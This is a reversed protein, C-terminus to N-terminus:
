EIISPLIFDNIIQLYKKIFLDESVGTIAIVMDLNPIVCIHQGASGWATYAPHGNVSLIWWQYGYCDSLWHESDIVEIQKRTSEVVWEKPIIQSGDWMGENLYLYGIKVMDRTTLRLGMEGYTYLIMDSWRLDSIGLPEFLYEEGFELAMLGTTKTIIMSLINSTTSNYAFEDGPESKLPSELMSQIRDPLALGFVGPGFGATMTLLHRITIERVQPDLAKSDFEPFFSIMKEDVGAIYGEQIAIGILASTISKTASGLYRLDGKERQYYEEFVIYGNRIVLISTTFPLKEKVYENIQKLQESNMGQSEASSTQWEETPWYEAFSINGSILIFLIILPIAISVLTRAKMKLRGSIIVDLSVLWIFFQYPTHLAM